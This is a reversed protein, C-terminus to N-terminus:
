RRNEIGRALCELNGLREAGLRVPKHELAKVEKCPGTEKRNLKM